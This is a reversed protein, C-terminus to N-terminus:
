PRELVAIVEAPGSGAISLGAGPKVVSKVAERLDRVAKARIEDELFPMMIRAVHESIRNEIHSLGAALSGHLRDGEQELWSKFRDAQEAEMAERNKQLSAAAEASAAERGEEIGRRYAESLERALEPSPAGTRTRSKVFPPLVGTPENKGSFEVLYKSASISSM